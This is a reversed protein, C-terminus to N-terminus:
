RRRDSSFGAPIFFKQTADTWGARDAFDGYLITADAGTDLQVSLLKGNIAIPVSIAGRPSEPTDSIWDFTVCQSRGRLSASVESM